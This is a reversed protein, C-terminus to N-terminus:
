VEVDYALVLGGLWIHDGPRLPAAHGILLTRGNLKTGFGSGLDELYPTRDRWTIVAHRRSVRVAMEGEKGLDVDPVTEGFRDVRGIVLDNPPGITLTRGSPAVTLLHRVNATPSLDLLYGPVTDYYLDVPGLSIRDGLRLQRSPGADLKQDNLYAGHRSGMDEITHRGDAGIIKLHRRSVTHTEEDEYSLDVDPPIGFNPDFRGLVLEGTVPLSIHRGTSTITLWCPTTEASPRRWDHRPRAERLADSEGIVDVVDEGRRRGRGQPSDELSVPQLYDPQEESPSTSLAEKEKAERAQRLRRSLMSETPAKSAREKEAKVLLCTPQLLGWTALTDTRAVFANRLNEKISPSNPSEDICRNRIPCKRCSYKYM